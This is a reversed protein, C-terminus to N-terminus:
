VRGALPTKGTGPVHDSAGIALALEVEDMPVTVTPSHPSASAPAAAGIFVYPTAGAPAIAHDSKNILKQVPINGMMVPTDVLDGIEVDKPDDYWGTGKYGVDPDTAAEAVEHSAVVTLDDYNCNFGQSQATGNRGGLYSIIAYRIDAAKGTSDRGAFANHYGLFDVESTQGGDNIVVAPEVFVVYLRNADPQKLKNQTILTQLDHEITSDYVDKTKDISKSFVVGPSTTGRGVNYGANTLMDMYPGDVLKGLFGDLSHTQKDHLFANNQWDQGYYVAQTEVHPMLAGGHYTVALMRRSELSELALRRACFSNM